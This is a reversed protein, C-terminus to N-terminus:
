PMSATLDRTAQPTPPHNHYTHCSTCGHAAGGEPSHCRVCSQKTPLIVDSTRESSAAAHCESCAMAAHMAHNFAAGPLWRDPTQPPTVIPAANERWAVEHCLACGEFRARAVGGIRGVVAVPETKGDSLFVTRELEDVTRMRSQLSSIQRRVFADVEHRGTIGLTRMAYDAYQVPLSRLYARVFAADGHPLKMGPNREDFDLTHCARCSQEFTTRAMFANSADPKHCYACDLAHGNILPINAGELHLHHNFKLTNHDASGERLVRFEPHDVAFSTIVETLGEAPRGVAHVIQGPPSSRTFLVPSMGASLLAASHMQAPDGHCAVCTQGDVAAMPGAGQHEKHCVPCSTNAAVDAHHFAQAEHCALCSSDMRSFDRPHSGALVGPRLSSRSAALASLALDDFDARAEAHCLACGKGGGSAMALHAFEAGSHSRSLARPNVFPERVSGSLGVLLAGLCAATVAASVLGRRARLSRVPRCRSIERCCRGDPHPGTGCPGGWDAPRTCVWTGKTEGPKLALRPACETTARCEGSPSPGIRCPCGEAAHGCIWDKNPREYRKSDFGPSPARGEKV